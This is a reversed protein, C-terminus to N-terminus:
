AALEAGDPEGTRVKNFASTLAVLRRETDATLGSAAERRAM